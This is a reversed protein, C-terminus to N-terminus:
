MGLDHHWDQDSSNRQVPKSSNQARSLWSNCFRLVGAKTKRNKPNADLWGIMSRIEQDVNVAPYLVVWMEFQDARIEFCGGTNLPLYFMIPSENVVPTLALKKESPALDKLAREKEKDERIKDPSVNESQTLTQESKTMVSDHSLAFSKINNILSRMQPNGTMSQDLMKAIKYCTVFGDSDEFLGLEVFKRMIEEVKKPTSGTNRAIIRADHELKFTINDISVKGAILEVCYWYLGYGELGYDLLIEQLKADMNADTKHKFWQM